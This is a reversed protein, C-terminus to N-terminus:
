SHELDEEQIQMEEFLDEQYYAKLGLLQHLIMLGQHLEVEHHNEELLYSVKHFSQHDFQIELQFEVLYLLNEIMKKM